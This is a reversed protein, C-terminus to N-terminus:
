FAKLNKGMLKITKTYKSQFGVTQANEDFSHKCCFKFALSDMKIGYHYKSFGSDM